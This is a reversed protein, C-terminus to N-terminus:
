GFIKLRLYGKELARFGQEGCVTRWIGPITFVDGDLDVDVRQAIIIEFTSSCYGLLEERCIGVVYAVGMDSKHEVSEFDFALLTIM